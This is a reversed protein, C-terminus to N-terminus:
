DYLKPREDNLTHYHGIKNKRCECLYDASLDAIVMNEEGETSEAIIEGDPGFVGIYAPFWEQKATEGANDVYAAYTTYDYARARLYKLVHTRRNQIEQEKDKVDKLSMCHCTPSILLEAGRKVYTASVSPFASDYCILTGTKIFGLDQISLEEGALCHEVEWSTRHCKRYNLVLNKGVYAQSVYYGEKTRELYGFSIIANIQEAKEKIKNIEPCDLILAAKEKIDLDYGSLIGEPFVVLDSKERGAKDSWKLINNLNEQIGGYIPNLSILAIRTDKM